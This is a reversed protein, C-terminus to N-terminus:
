SQTMSIRFYLGSEEPPPTSDDRVGQLSHPHATAMRTQPRRPLRFGKLAVFLFM